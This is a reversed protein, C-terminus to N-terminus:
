VNSRRSRSPVAENFVLADKDGEQAGFLAVADIPNGESGAQANVGTM